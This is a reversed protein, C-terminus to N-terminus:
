FYARLYFAPSIGFSPKIYWDNDTSSDPSYYDAYIIIDKRYNLSITGYIDASLSYSINPYKELFFHEIGIPFAITLGGSFYRYEIDRIHDGTIDSNSDYRRINFNAGIGIGKVLYMGKVGTAKRNLFYYIIGPLYIEKERTQRNEIELSDVETGEEEGYTIKIGDKNLILERGSGNTRWWRFSVGTADWPFDNIGISFGTRHKEVDASIISDTETEAFISPVVTCILILLFINKFISM